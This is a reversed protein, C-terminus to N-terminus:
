RGQGLWERLIETRSYSDELVRTGKPRLAKATELAQVLVKMAAAEFAATAEDLVQKETWSPHANRM